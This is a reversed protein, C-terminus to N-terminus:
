QAETNELEKINKELREMYKGFAKKNMWRALWHAAPTVIIIVIALAVWDSTRDMYSEDKISLGLMFGASVSFPYLVLGTLEEYRIVRKIRDRVTKMNILLDRDMNIEKGLEKYEQYFLVDGIVYAILLITLLIQSPLPFAFPIFVGLLVTFFLCFLLKTLVKRRLTQMTGRSKTSIHTTIETASFGTLNNKERKVDKWLEKLEDM